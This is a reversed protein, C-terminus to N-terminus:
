GLRDRAAALMAEYRERQAAVAEPGGAGRTTRRTVPVGAVVLAAADEGLADDARVLEALAPAGPELSRRVLAGVTAHADRFPTGRAVLWEALDTAAMVPAGAAAAM